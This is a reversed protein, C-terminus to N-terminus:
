FAAWWFGDHLGVYVIEDIRFRHSDGEWNGDPNLYAVLEDARELAYMIVDDMTRMQVRGGGVDGLTERAM